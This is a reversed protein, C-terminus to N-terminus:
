INMTQLGRGTSERPASGHSGFSVCVCFMWRVKNQKRVPWVLVKEEKEKEKQTEKKGKTKMEDEENRETKKKM